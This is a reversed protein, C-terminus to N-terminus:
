CISVMLLTAASGRCILRMGSQPKQGMSKAAVNGRGSMARIKAGVKDVRNKEFATQLVKFNNLWDYDNKTNMKVKHM